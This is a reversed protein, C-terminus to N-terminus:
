KIKGFIKKIRKALEDKHMFYAPYVFPHAAMKRTGYEQFPAYVVNTGTVVSLGKEGSPRGVGDDAKAKGSTRGRNMSSGAWNTSISGKLRATDVAVKRKADGEIKFATEKLAIECAGRKAVQYKKLNSIVKEVGELKVNMRDAM